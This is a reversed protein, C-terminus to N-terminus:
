QVQFGFGWTWQVVNVSIAPLFLGALYLRVPGSKTPGASVLGAFFASLAVTAPVIILLGVADGFVYATLDDRRPGSGSSGAFVFVSFLSLSGSLAIVFRTLWPLPSELRQLQFDFIAWLFSGVTRYKLDDLNTPAPSKAAPKKMSPMM